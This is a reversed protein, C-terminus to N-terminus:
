LSCHENPSEPFYRTSGPGFVSDPAGFGLRAWSRVGSACLGGLAGRGAGAARGRACGPRRQRGRGRAREGQRESARGGASREGMGHREGARWARAGWAHGGAARARCARGARGAQEGLAGAAQGSDCYLMHIAICRGM